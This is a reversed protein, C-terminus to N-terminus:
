PDRFSLPSTSAYKLMVHVSNDYLNHALKMPLFRLTSLPSSISYLKLPISLNTFKVLVGVYWFSRGRVALERYAKLPELVGRRSHFVITAWFMPMFIESGHTIRLFWIWYLTSCYWAIFLYPLMSFPTVLDIL